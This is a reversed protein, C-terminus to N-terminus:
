ARPAPGYSRSRCSLSPSTCGIIRAITYILNSRKGKKIGLQLGAQSTDQCPFDGIIVHPAGYKFVYEEVMEFSIKTIDAPLARFAENAM